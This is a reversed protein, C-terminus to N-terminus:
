ERPGRGASDLWANALRVDAAHDVDIIRAVSLTAIRAGRAAFDRLFGRMRTIGRALADRAASRARPSFAYVGGTVPTGTPVAAAGADPLELVLGNPDTRVYLPSEDDVFPTVALLADAGRALATRAGDYVARWDAPPMVSDVMTCFVNGDPVKEFGQVLTHLSSPTRCAIVNVPTGFDRSRLATFVGALDVRVMCTLTECGLASLQELLRVILPEGGVHILPKPTEIGEEILRSGEGGALILGNV